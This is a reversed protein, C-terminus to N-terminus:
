ASKAKKMYRDFLIDYFVKQFEPNDNAQKYFKINSDLMGQLVCEAEQLFTLRVNERSTNARVSAKLAESEDL